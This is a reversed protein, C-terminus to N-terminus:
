GDGSNITDIIRVEEVGEGLASAMSVHKIELAFPQSRGLFTHQEEVKIRKKKYVQVPLLRGPPVTGVVVTM